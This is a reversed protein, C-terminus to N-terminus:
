SHDPQYQKRILDNKFFYNDNQEGLIKQFPGSIYGMQNESIEFVPPGGAKFLSSEHM